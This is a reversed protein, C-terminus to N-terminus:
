RHLEAEDRRVYRHHHHSCMCICASQEEKLEEVKVGEKEERRRFGHRRSKRAHRAHTPAMQRDDLPTTPRTTTTRGSNADESAPVSSPRFAVALQKDLPQLSRLSSSLPLKSNSTSSLSLCLVKSM